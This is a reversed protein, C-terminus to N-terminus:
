ARDTNLKPRRWKVLCDKCTYRWFPIDNKRQGQLFQAHWDDSDCKPCCRTIEFRAWMTQMEEQDTTM